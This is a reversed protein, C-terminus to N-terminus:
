IITLEQEIAERLFRARWELKKTFFLGIRKYVKGVNSAREFVLFWSEYVTQSGVHDPWLGILMILVDADPAPDNENDPAWRWPDKVNVLDNPGDARHFKVRLISCGRFDRQPEFTVPLCLGRLILRGGSVQGFPNESATEANIFIISVDPSPFTPKGYMWRWTQWIVEGRRSAWSWSPARYEVTQSPRDLRWLLDVLLSHEWLGAYFLCQREAAIRTTVGQLAPFIDTPYTLQLGSYIRILGHWAFTQLSQKDLSTLSAPPPQTLSALTSKKGGGRIKQDTFSTGDDMEQVESCEWCLMSGTFHVIRPSLIWEQFFWARQQLPLQDGNMVAFERLSRVYIKYALGDQNTLCHVAPLRNTSTSDSPKQSRCLGGTSDPSATAAITLIAGSYIAAMKSGEEIWDDLNDQLICLSDIWLYRIDLKEAIAIAHRFTLPLDHWQITDQFTQLTASTLQLPVVGGWCHSLCIYPERQNAASLHLRVKNSTQVELVRTPLLATVSTQICAHSLECLELWQSIKNTAVNLDTVNDAVIREPIAPWPNPYGKVGQLVLSEHLGTGGVHLGKETSYLHVSRSSSDSGVKEWDQLVTHLMLCASCRDLLLDAFSTMFMSLPLARADLDMCVRCQPDFDPPLKPHRSSIRPTVRRPEPAVSRYSWDDESHGVLLRPRSNRESALQDEACRTLQLVGRTTRSKPQVTRRYLYRLM